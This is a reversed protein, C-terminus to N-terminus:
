DVRKPEGYVLTGALPIDPTTGNEFDIAASFRVYDKAGKLNLPIKGIEGDADLVLPDGFDEWSDGTEQRHQIKCTVTFSDPTGSAAGLSFIGEGEEYNKDRLIGNGGTTVTAEASVQPPIGQEVKIRDGLHRM